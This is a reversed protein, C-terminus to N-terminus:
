RGELKELVAAPIAQKGALWRAVTRGDRVLVQRAYENVSLGSRAIADRLLAISEAATRPTV